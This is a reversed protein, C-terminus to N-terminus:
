DAPEAARARYYDQMWARLVEGANRSGETMAALDDYLQLYDMPTRTQKVPDAVRKLVEALHGAEPAWRREDRTAPDSLRGMHSNLMGKGLLDRELPLSAQALAAGVGVGGQHTDQGTYARAYTGMVMWSPDWDRTDERRLRGLAALARAPPSRHLAQALEPREMTLDIVDLM